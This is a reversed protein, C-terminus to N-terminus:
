NKAKSGSAKKSNLEEIARKLIDDKEVEVVAEGQVESDKRRERDSTYTFKGEDDAEATYTKGDVEITIKAGHPAGSGIVNFPVKLRSDKVEIDPTIGEKHIERGKPTVWASNVIAAKGGDPLNFPLQAVGKGFTKEGIVKARKVDQLAGSVVESASASNRNVLIVLEGKYDHISRKAKGYVEKRNSRDKLSVITGSSMFQDAVDVGANLLGGGNDRMDLILKNVKKKKMYKMADRFQNIVKSNYFTNLAIYGVNGPLITKEVSVIRVPKREINVTYPKGKRAFTIKVTTNKKGRVLRVIDMLKAETVDEDEVKVFIDGIQVGAEYAANGKYVNDVKGGTGNPNASTLQIGIGHFEGALNEQDIDNDEPQSYYTFEDELSGLAGQIAGQLVKEEDIPRLYYKKLYGMVKLFSKGSESANLDSQNYGGMQAYGLAATIALSSTM